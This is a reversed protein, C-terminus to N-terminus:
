IGGIHVTPAGSLITADCTTSDGVRAANVGGILVQGTLRPKVINLPGMALDKPVICVHQSGGVAAPKGEILVTAVKVAVAAPPPGVTGGHSTKDGLRAAPPM